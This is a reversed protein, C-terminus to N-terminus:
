TVSHPNRSERNQSVASSSAVSADASELEATFRRSDDISVDEVCKTIAEELSVGTRRRHNQVEILWDELSKPEAKKRLSELKAIRRKFTSMM